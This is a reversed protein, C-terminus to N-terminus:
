PLRYVDPRDKPCPPENPCPPVKQGVSHRIWTFDCRRCAFRTGPAVPTGYGPTPAFRSPQQQESLREDMWERTWPESVLLGVLETVAEPRHDAEALLQDLRFVFSPPPESPATDLVARLQRALLVIREAEPTSV